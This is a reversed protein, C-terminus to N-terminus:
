ANKDWKAFLYTLYVFLILGIIEVFIHYPFHYYEIMKDCHISENYMVIILLILLIILWMLGKKFYKPLLSYSCIMSFAFVSLGSIIMWTHGVFTWIFLDILVITCLIYLAYTNHRRKSLTTTAYLITISIVYVMSHIINSQWRADIHQAHSFAHWLQFILFCLLVIKVAKTKSHYLFYFIILCSILDVATSIPQKIISNPVPIECTTFPFSHTM